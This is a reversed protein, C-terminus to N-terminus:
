PRKWVYIRVFWLLLLSCICGSLTTAVAAGEIGFHPILLFNLVINLVAALVPGFAAQWEHGSMVLLMQVPGTAVNVLQSIILLHMATLGVVFEPGFLSLLYEGLYYLGLAVMLSIAFALLTTRRVLRRLEVLNGSKYLRAIIPNLPALTLALSLSVLAANRTAAHYPAVASNELLVGILIVDSNNLIVSTGAVIILPLGALLWSRPHIRGPSHTVAPGVKRAVRVALVTLAVLGITAALARLAMVDEPAIDISPALIFLLVLSFFLLADNLFAGLGSQSILQLGNLFSSPIRQLQRMVAMICGVFYLMGSTGSAAWFIPTAALAALVATAIGSVGASFLTVGRALPWDDRSAAIATERLVIQGLGLGGLVIVINLAGLVFQLAGYGEAGLVRATLVSIGFGFGLAAIKYLFTWRVGRLVTRM